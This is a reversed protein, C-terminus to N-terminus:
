TAKEGRGAGRNATQDSETKGEGQPQSTVTNAKNTARHNIEHYSRYRVQTM